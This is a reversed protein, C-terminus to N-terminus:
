WVSGTDNHISKGGDRLGVYGVERRIRGQKIAKENSTLVLIFDSSMLTNKISIVCLKKERKTFIYMLVKEGM